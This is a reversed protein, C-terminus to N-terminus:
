ALKLADLIAAIVGEIDNMVQSNWFRVVRYGQSELLKTRAVDNQSREMHGRGDLEIVLRHKPSCFDVVYRGIAHQRRFSVGRLQSRRLHAWLRSEA